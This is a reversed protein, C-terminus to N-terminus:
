MFASSAEAKEDGLNLPLATSGPAVDIAVPYVSSVKARIRLDPVRDKDGATANNIPGSSSPSSAIFCLNGYYM